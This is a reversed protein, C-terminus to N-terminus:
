RGGDGGSRSAPASRPRAEERLHGLGAALRGHVTRCLAAATMGQYERAAIPELIRVRIRWPPRGLPLASGKPLAERSGDIVIPVITAGSDLAIRFPGLHLPQLAGDPSRTGEPFLCVSIGRRLWEGCERMMGRVSALDRPDVGVYGASRMHAGVLPVAFFRSSTVWKIQIPLGQLALVDVMSQHNPLLLFPGTGQLRELGEVSRRWFPNLWFPIRGWAIRSVRDLLRRGPDLRPPALLRIPLGVVYALAAFAVVLTWIYLAALRNM